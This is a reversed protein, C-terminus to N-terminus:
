RGNTVEVLAILAAAVACLGEIIRADQDVDLDAAYSLHDKAKTLHDKM